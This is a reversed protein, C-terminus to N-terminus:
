GVVARQRRVEVLAGSKVSGVLATGRRALAREADPVGANLYRAATRLAAPFEVLRGARWEGAAESALVGGVSVSVGGEVPEWAGGISVHSVAVQLSAGAATVAADRTSGAACACPNTARPRCPGRSWGGLRQDFWRRLSSHEARDVAHM